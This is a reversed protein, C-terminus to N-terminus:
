ERDRLKRRLVKGVNTTPVEDIIEVIRPWKYGAINAKCWDQIDKVTTKGIYEPKLSVFAKINEEGKDDKIGIVGVELIPEYQYMLDEVERPYVSHGKYKIMDKLRDMIHLFGEDDIYGIDGTYLWGDRLDKKTADPKNYYGLFVQPGKLAIEGHTSLEDEKGPQKIEEKTDPNVIKCDTNPFAMGVSGIKRKTSKSESLPNAWAVPSSESLGYGEVIRAGTIAEFKEQVDLALPGAGSLAAKLCSLDYKEVTPHNNIRNFLTNVGSFLTGKYKQIAGLLEDVERPNPLLICAGGIKIAVLMMTTLGFIHSFPLAGVSVESGPQTGPIWSDCQYCNAVLNYQSLMAGKPLGTTGGTYMLVALDKVPDFRVEKPKGQTKLLDKFNIFKPGVPWKKMRPIRGLLNGLIRIIPKLFEGMGTLIIKELPLEDVIKEVEEEYFHDFIILIKSGSDIVQHKIEASKQLPVIPSVIGGARMVGFFAIVYQPCNPMNVCVRDGKQLGLNQLGKAFADVYKDLQGYTIDKGKPFHLAILEPNEKAVKRFMDDVSIDEPIDLNKPVDDPWFKYWLRDGKVKYGVDTM